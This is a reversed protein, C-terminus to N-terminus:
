KIFSILKMKSNRYILSWSCVQINTVLQSNTLELEQIKVKFEKNEKENESIIMSYQRRMNEAQKGSEQRTLKEAEEIEEIKGQTIMYQRNIGKIKEEKEKVERELSDWKLTQEANLQQFKLTDKKALVTLDEAIPYKCKELEQALESIEHQKSQENVILERALSDYNIQLAKKESNLVKHNNQLEEHMQQLGKHTSAEEDYKKKIEQLEEEVKLLMDPSIYQEETSIMQEVTQKYLLDVQTEKFSVEPLPPPKSELVENNEIDITNIEEISSEFVLNDNLETQTAQSEVTKKVEEHKGSNAPLTFSGLNYVQAKEPSAQTSENIAKIKFSVSQNKTSM